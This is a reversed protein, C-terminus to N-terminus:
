KEIHGPFLPYVHRTVMVDFIMYVYYCHILQLLWKCIIVSFILMLREEKIFFLLM